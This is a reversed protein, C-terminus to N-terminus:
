EGTSAKMETLSCTIKNKMLAATGIIKSM